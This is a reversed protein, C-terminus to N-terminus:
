EVARFLKDLRNGIEDFIALIGTGLDEDAWSEADDLRLQALHEEAHRFHRQLEGLEHGLDERLKSDAQGLQTELEQRREKLHELHKELQQIQQQQNM